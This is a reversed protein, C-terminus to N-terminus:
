EGKTAYEWLAKFIEKTDHNYFGSSNICNFEIVKKENDVSALDMVCNDNPLWIDAFAQAEEITETDLERIKVLRKSRRYMSGSVIKRNVIFWRWEAQIDKVTSIVLPLDESIQYSGSSACKVADDLFRKIEKTTDVFGAFQKGDESPRIFWEKDDPYEPLFYDKVNKTSLVDYVDNLMDDRNDMAESYNFKSLDFYLGKWGKEKSLMTLRTSGYPIYDKGELPTNSIINDTFPIIDVFEHPYDYIADKIQLLQEEGTLNYQVIFKM